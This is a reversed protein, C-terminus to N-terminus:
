VVASKSLYLAMTIGSGVQPATSVISKKSKVFATQLGATFPFMMRM